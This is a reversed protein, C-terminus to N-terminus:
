LGPRPAETSTLPRARCTSGPPWLTSLDCAPGAGSSPGCRTHSMVPGLGATAVQYLLPQFTHFNHRRGFHGRGPARALQRAVGLGAFGAGIVVVRPEPVPRTSAGM